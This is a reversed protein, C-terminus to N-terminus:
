GNMQRNWYTRVPYFDIALMVRLICCEIVNWVFARPVICICCVILAMRFFLKTDDNYWIHLHFSLFLSRSTFVFFSPVVVLPHNFVNAWQLWIHSSINAYTQWRYQISLCLNVMSAFENNWWSYFIYKHDNKGDGLVTSIKSERNKM